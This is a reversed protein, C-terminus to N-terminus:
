SFTLIFVSNGLVQRQVDFKFPSFDPLLLIYYPLFYHSQFHSQVSWTSSTTYTGWGAEFYLHCKTARLEATERGRLQM